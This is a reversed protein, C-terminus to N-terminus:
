ITWAGNTHANVAAAVSSTPPATDATARGADPDTSRRTRRPELPRRRGDLPLGPPKGPFGAPCPQRVPRSAGSRTLERWLAEREAAIRAKAEEAGRHAALTFGFSVMGVCLALGVAALRPRPRTWFGADRRQNRRAQRRALRRRGGGLEEQLRSRRRAADRLRDLETEADRLEAELARVRGILADEDDRYAM